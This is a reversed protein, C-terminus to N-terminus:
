ITTRHSKTHEIVNQQHQLSEIENQVMCCGDTISTGKAYIIAGNAQERAGGVSKSAKCLECVGSRENM